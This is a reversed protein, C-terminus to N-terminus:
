SAPQQCKLKTLYGGDVSIESGNFLPANRLAFLVLNSIEQTTGIRNMLTLNSMALHHPREDTLVPGPSVTVSLIGLGGALAALQRSLESLCAKSISYSHLPVVVQSAVSSINVVVIPASALGDHGAHPEIQNARERHRQALPILCKHIIYMPVSVNLHIVKKFESFSEDAERSHGSGSIGQGGGGGGDARLSDAGFPSVFKGGRWCANNILVDLRQFKVKVFEILGDLQLYDCLDAGFACAASTEVGADDRSASSASSATAKAARNCEAVVGRMSAENRGTVIVFYEGTAALDVAINAGIGTASGTILAIRKSTRWKSNEVAGEFDCDREDDQEHARQPWIPM